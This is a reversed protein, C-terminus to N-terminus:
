EGGRWAFIPEALVLLSLVLNQNKAVYVAVRVAETRNM